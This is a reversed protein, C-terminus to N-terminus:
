AVHQSNGHTSAQVAQGAALINLSANYDRDAIFGCEPCIHTRISLGKPVINKCDSCKQSTYHAPVLVLRRNLMELKYDLYNLFTQWSADLISKSLHHNQVMGKINLNEAYVIDNNDTYKRSVKHLFDKRQNKIYEYTKAIQKVQKKWRMSFKTKNKLKRQQIRLRRQMKRFYQPSKITQGNSDTVFHKLGMDIGVKKGTKERNEIETEVCMQLYWGIARKIIKGHTAEKFDQLGRCKIWQM